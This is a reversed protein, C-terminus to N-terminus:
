ITMEAGAEDFWKTPKNFFLAGLDDTYWGVPESVWRYLPELQGLQGNNHHAVVKYFWRCWVLGRSSEMSPRYDFFVIDGIPPTEVTVHYPKNM